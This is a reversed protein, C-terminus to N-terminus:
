AAARAGGASGRGTNGNRARDRRRLAVASGSAGGVSPAEGAEVLVGLDVLARRALLELVLRTVSRRVEPTPPPLNVIPGARRGADTSPPLRRCGRDPDSARGAERHGGTALESADTQNDNGADRAQEAVAWEETCTLDAGIAFGM